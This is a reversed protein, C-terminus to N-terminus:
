DVSPTADDGLAARAEDMLPQIAEWRSPWNERNFIKLATNLLRFARDFRDKDHTHRGLRMLANALDFETIAQEHLPYDRYSREAMAGDLSGVGAELLEQDNEFSGLISLANGRNNHILGWLDPSMKGGRKLDSKADDYTDVAETLLTKSRTHNGLAFLADARCTKILVRDSRVADEGLGELIKAYDAAATELLKRDRERSGLQYYVAALCRQMSAWSRADTERSVQKLAAKFSAIAEMLYDVKGFAEGLRALASGLSGQTRARDLPRPEGTLSERYLNIAEEYRSNDNELQAAQTLVFALNSRVLSWSRPANLLDDEMMAARYATVAQRFLDPSKELQGFESLTNGLNTQLVAWGSPWKERTIKTLAANYRDAAEQLRDRNERREGLVWLANALSTQIGAWSFPDNEDEPSWEKLEASLISVAEELRQDTRERTGLAILTDALDLRGRGREEKDSASQIEFRAIEISIELDLNTGRDEGRKKFNRQYFRLGLFREEPTCRLTVVHNVHNAATAAERRLTAQNIAMLRLEVEAEVAEEKRKQIIALAEDLAEAAQGFEGIRNKSKVIALTKKNLEGLKSGAEAKEDSDILTKVSSELERGAQELDAEHELPKSLAVVVEPQIGRKAVEASLIEIM